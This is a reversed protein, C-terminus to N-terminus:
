SLTETDENSANKFSDALEKAADKMEQYLKKAKEDLKSEDTVPVFFGNGTDKLYIAPDATPILGTADFPVSEEPTPTQTNDMQTRSLTPKSSSDIREHTMEYFQEALLIQEQASLQEFGEKVQQATMKSPKAARQEDM